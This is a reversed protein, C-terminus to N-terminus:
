RKENGPIGHSPLGPFFFPWPFYGHPPYIDQDPVTSMHGSVKNLLSLVEQKTIGMIGPMMARKIQLFTFGSARGIV